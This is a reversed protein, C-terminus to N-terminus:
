KPRITEKHSSGQQYVIAELDRKSFQGTGQLDQLLRRLEKRKGTFPVLVTNGQAYKECWQLFFQFRVKSNYDRIQKAVAGVISENWRGDETQLLRVPLEMLWQGQNNLLESYAREIKSNGTSNTNSRESSNSGQRGSDQRTSRSNTTPSSVASADYPQNVTLHKLKEITELDQLCLLLLSDPLRYIDQIAKDMNKHEKAMIDISGMSWEVVLNRLSMRATVNSQTTQLETRRLISAFAKFLQNLQPDETPKVFKSKPRKYEELRRQREEEERQAQEEAKREQEQEEKYMRRDKETLIAHDHYPTYFKLNRWDGHLFGYHHGSPDRKIKSIIEADTLFEVTRGDQYHIREAIYQRNASTNPYWECTPRGNSAYRALAIVEGIGKCTKCRVKYGTLGGPASSTRGCTPCSWASPDLPTHGCGACAREQVRYGHENCFSKYSSFNSWYKDSCPGIHGTFDAM